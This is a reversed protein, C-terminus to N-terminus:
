VLHRRPIKNKYKHEVKIKIDPCVTMKWMALKRLDPNSSKSHLLAVTKDRLIDHFLFAEKKSHPVITFFESRIDKNNKHVASVIYMTHHKYTPKTHRDYLTYFIDHDYSHHCKVSYFWESM